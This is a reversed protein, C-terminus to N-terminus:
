LWDKKYLREFEKEARALLTGISGPAVGTAEAIEAYSLGSHRLILVQAKRKKMKGLAARVRENDLQREATDAPDEPFADETVQLGAREEYLQRRKGARLANFGLNTAVRYLWGGLNSLDKPPHFQLRFFAELAIDEAEQPDGLMRSLIGCLRKWHEEFLAEFDIPISKAGAIRSQRKSLTMIM